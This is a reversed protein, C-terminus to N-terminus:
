EPTGYTGYRIGADIFRLLNEELKPPLPSSLPAATPMLVFGGGPKAEEMLREVLREIEDATKRELDKLEVNGMLVLRDGYQEKLERMSIDGDPPPECPDVCVADTEALYRVASRIRGHSHVRPIAGAKRIKEAMPATYRLVFDPFYSDPLYPPTAYEPGVIRVMDAVGTELLLALRNEVIEWLRDLFWKADETETMAYILFEEMPFLSCAMALPDSVSATLLGGDGMKEKCAIMHSVDMSCDFPLSLYKEVDEWEKLFHELVWTTHVGDDRRSRSVLDGKPTHLVTQEFVSNGERRTTKETLADLAPCVCRPKMLLMTDTKERMVRLLRAYSPDANAFSAYVSGPYPSLEYLSIPVRDTQQRRFTRLLRERPTM